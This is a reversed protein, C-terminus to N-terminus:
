TERSERLVELAYIPLVSMRRARWPQVALRFLWETGSQRMWEPARPVTGAVFDFAGGVGIGVIGPLRSRIRAIWREQEPFGYAVLVLQTRARQLMEVADDDNEARPSGVHIGAVRFGDAEAQLRAAARAAIGEGAGVFSVRWDHAAAIAPLRLLLDTGTVRVADPCERRRLAWVVGFGDPLALAASELVGAYESDRRARMVIEPNVTAVLGGDGTEVLGAIRELAADMDLCDVRVGLVRM